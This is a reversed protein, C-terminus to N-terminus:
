RFIRWTFTSLASLPSGNLTPRGKEGVQCNGFLLGSIEHANELAHFDEGTISTRTLSLNQLRQMPIYSLAKDTIGRCGCLILSGLPADAFAKLGDDTIETDGIDLGFLKGKPIDSLKENRMSTARLNLFRLPMRKLWVLCNNTVGTGTLNLDELKLNQLYRIGADSILPCDKLSIATVDKRNRFSKLADDTMDSYDKEFNFRDKPNTEIYRVAAMNINSLRTEPVATTAVPEARTAFLKSYIFYCVGGVLALSVVIAFIPKLLLSSKSRSSVAVANESRFFSKPDALAKEVEAMSRFRDMSNKSLLRDVILQTSPSFTKGMSGQKLTQAQATKHKVLTELSTKGMHPPAGTLCEYFLCGLSYQDSRVTVPIGDAQEPSMYLPSGFIEGTRTLQQQEDDISKAIGFDVIKAQLKNADRVLLVNSPKLDRHIIGYSHAHELAQSLQLMLDVALQEDIAGSTKLLDALSEGSCYEMVLFPQGDATVDFQLVKAINPHNLNGATQAERQFRRVTNGDGGATVHLVKIAVLRKVLIDGGKYVTGMGASGLQELLRFRNAVTQGIAFQFNQSNSRQSEFQRTIPRTHDDM